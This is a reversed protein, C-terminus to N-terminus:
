SPSHDVVQAVESARNQTKELYPWSSNAGSQGWVVIRDIEAEQSVLIVPM